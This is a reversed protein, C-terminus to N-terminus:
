MLNSRIEDFIQYIDLIGFGWDRNPYTTDPKRRAGRIMFTKMDQTSMRPYNGNVVGWEMMMAAIGATHAAAASTGTVEVFGHNLSPSMVNVGPAAIDPKVLQIRTYGRGADVFLSEDEANYATVTIPTTACSVSLLTTSIDSRIFFTDNSIFNNMPLWIDFSM